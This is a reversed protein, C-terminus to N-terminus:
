SGCGFSPDGAASACCSAPKGMETVYQDMKAAAGKRVRKGMGIADAIEEADAGFEQAKKAHYELCPQCNATISAGVAILEQIKESLKM